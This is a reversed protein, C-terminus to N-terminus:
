NLVLDMKIMYSFYNKALFFAHTASSRRVGARKGQLVLSCRPAVQVAPSLIVCYWKLEFALIGFEAIKEKYNPFSYYVETLEKESHRKPSIQEPTYKKLLDHTSVFHFVNKVEKEFKEGWCSMILVDGAKIDKYKITGARTEVKKRGIKIAEFIDKNIEAFKLVYTKM